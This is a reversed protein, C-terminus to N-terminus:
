YASRHQAFMDGPSDATIGGIERDVCFILLHVQRRRRKVCCPLTRRCKKFWLLQQTMDRAGLATQERRAQCRTERTIVQRAENGPTILAVLAAKLAGIREIKVIEDQQGMSEETFMGIHQVGTLRAPSVHQDILILIGVRRLM